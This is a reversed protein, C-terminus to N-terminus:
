GTVPGVFLFMLPVVSFMANTMLHAIMLPMLRGQRRYIIGAGLGWGVFAFGYVFMGAASPALLVHQAGFALAPLSVAMWAPRGAAFLRGQAHGRYVLEEAPANTLPFLVATVLASTLTFWPAFEVLLSPDPAFVTEYETLMERPGFLVLMALNVAVIFPVFLVLLWLLGQMVDRSLRGRNWGALERLGSGRVLQRRRLLWLCTLNVPIFYLGSLQPTLAFSFSASTFYSVLWATLAAAAALLAIRVVVLTM